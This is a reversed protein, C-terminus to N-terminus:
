HTQAWKLAAVVTAIDEPAISPCNWGVLAEITEKAKASLEADTEAQREVEARVRLDNAVRAAEDLEAPSKFDGSDIVATVVEVLRAELTKYVGAAKANDVASSGYYGLGKLWQKDSWITVEIRGASKGKRARFVRGSRANLLHYESGRVGRQTRNVSGWEVGDVIVHYYGGGQKSLEVVYVHYHARRAM